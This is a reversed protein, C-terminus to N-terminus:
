RRLSAEPKTKSAAAFVSIQDVPQEKEEAIHLYMQELRLYRQCCEEDRTQKALIACKSAQRRFRKASWM